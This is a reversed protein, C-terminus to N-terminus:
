SPGSGLRWQPRLRGGGASEGLRGLAALAPIAVLGSITLDTRIAETLGHRLYSVLGGVPVDGVYQAGVLRGRDRILRLFSKRPGALDTVEVQGLPYDRSTLGISGTHLDFVRTGVARVAGPFSRSRGLITQAAAEAQLIATSWLLSLAPGCHNVEWTETCDGCALINPVSTVMTRTTTIGGLEGTRIGSVTALEVRPRMGSAVLVADVTLCRNDKLLVNLESGRRQISSVQAGTLVSIGKEVLRREVMRAPLEDLLRPLVWREMEILSVESGRGALATAAHTGVPGAGIVALRRAIGLRMIRDCDAPTKLFVVGPDELEEIRPREPVSGTALVLWDYPIRGEDLLLTSQDADIRVARQGRFVRTGERVYDEDRKLFLSERQVEGGIYYPLLCPSYLPEREETVMTVVFSSNRANLAKVVTNAAIGDGVIVIQKQM